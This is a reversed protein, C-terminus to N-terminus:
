GVLGFDRIYEFHVPDHLNYIKIHQLNNRWGPAADPRGTGDMRGLSAPAANAERTALAPPSEGTNNHSAPYDGACHADVAPPHRYPHRHLGRAIGIRQKAAHLLPWAQPKSRGANQLTVYRRRM